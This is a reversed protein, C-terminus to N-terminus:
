AHWRTDVPILNSLIAPLRSQEQDQTGQPPPYGLAALVHSIVRSALARALTHEVSILMKMKLVGSAPLLVVPDAAAAAPLM